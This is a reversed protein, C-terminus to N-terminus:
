RHAKEQQEDDCVECGVGVVVVVVVVVMVTFVVLGTKGASAADFSYAAERSAASGKVLIRSSNMMGELALRALLLSAFGPILDSETSQVETM